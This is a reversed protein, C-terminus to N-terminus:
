YMNNKILCKSKMIRPINIKIVKEAISLFLKNWIELNKNKIKKMNKAKTGNIPMSTFPDLLHISKPKKGLNWGTSIIFGKKIIVKDTKNHTFFYLRYKLYKRLLM